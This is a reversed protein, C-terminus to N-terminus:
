QFAQALFLCHLVYVLRLVLDNHPETVNIIGPPAESSQEHTYVVFMLYINIVSRFIQPISETEALV